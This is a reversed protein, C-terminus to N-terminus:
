WGKLEEGNGDYFADALVRIWDVGYWITIILGNCATAATAMAGGVEPTRSAGACAFGCCAACCCTIVPFFLKIIGAVIYGAQGQSLYFWDAGLYGLFFSLLFATLKSKQEYACPEKGWHIYGEECECFGSSIVTANYQSFECEGHKGCLGQGKSICPFEGEDAMVSLGFLIAFAVISLCKTMTLGTRVVHTNQKWFTIGM